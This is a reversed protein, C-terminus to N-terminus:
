DINHWYMSPQSDASSTSAIASTGHQSDALAATSTSTQSDSSTTAPADCLSTASSIFAQSTGQNLAASLRIELFAIYDTDSGEFQFVSKSQSM